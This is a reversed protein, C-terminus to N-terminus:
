SQADIIEEAMSLLEDKTLESDMACIDYNIRKVSFKVNQVSQVKIGDPNGYSFVYKGSAEDAKDEKTLEYDGPVFKATYAHYYINVDGHSGALEAEDYIGGNESPDAFINVSGGEKEYEFNVFKYTEVTNGDTDMDSRDGIVAEKFSYGNSFDEPMGTEFGADKQLTGASPLSIYDPVVRSHGVSEGLLYHGMVGTAGGVVMVAAAIIAAIKIKGAKMVVDEKSAEAILNEDIEGIVKFLEKGNM